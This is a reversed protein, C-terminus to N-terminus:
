RTHWKLHGKIRGSLGRFRFRDDLKGGYVMLVLLYFESVGQQTFGPSFPSTSVGYALGTTWGQGCRETRTHESRNPPHISSETGQWGEDSRIGPEGRDVHRINIYGGEGM